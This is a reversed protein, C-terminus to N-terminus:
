NASRNRGSEARGAAPLGDPRDNPPSDFVPGIEWVFLHDELGEYPGYNVTAFRERDRSFSLVDVPGGQEGHPLDRFALVAGTRPDHLSIRRSYASLLRRDDPAFRLEYGRMDWGPGKAEEVHAVESASATDWLVVTTIISLRGAVLGTDEIAGGLSAGDSSFALSSMTMPKHYRDDSPKPLDLTRTKGSKIDWLVLRGNMGMRGDALALTKGDPAFVLLSDKASRRHVLRAAERDAALDWVIVADPDTAALWRGDPSLAVLSGAQIGRMPSSKVRGDRADLRRVYADRPGESSLLRGVVLLDGDPTYTISEPHGGCPLVARIQGSIADFLTIDPKGPGVLAIIKGDPSFSAGYRGHREGLPIMLGKAGNPQVHEVVADPIRDRRSSRSQILYAATGIGCVMVLILPTRIRPLPTRM